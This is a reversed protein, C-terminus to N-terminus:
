RGRLIRTLSIAVNTLVNNEEAMSVRAKERYREFVEDVIEQGFHAIILPELVSRMCTTFDYQDSTDDLTSDFKYDNWDWSVQFVHVLNVNFSGEKKVLFELELPSPTYAAINFTDLKAEDINGQVNNYM